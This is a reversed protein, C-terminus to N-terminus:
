PPAEHVIARLRALAASVRVADARSLAETGYRAREFAEIVDELDGPPLPFASALVLQTERPTAGAHALGRQALAAVLARYALFVTADNENRALFANEARALAREVETLTRRRYRGYLMVLIVLITAASIVAMPWWSTATEAGIFGAGPTSTRAATTEFPRLEPSGAFRVRPSADPDSLRLRASGTADAEVLLTADGTTVILQAGPIPTGDPARAVIRLESNAYSASLSPIARILVVLGTTSSLYQDHGGFNAQLVAPGLTANAPVLIDASAIAGARTRASAQAVEDLTVEIDADPVAAGLATVVRLRVTVGEGPVLETPPDIFSITTPQNLFIPEADEFAAHRQGEHIRVGILLSPRTLHRVPLHITVGGDERTVLTGLAQDDITVDVPEGTRATATDDSFYAELVPATVDVVGRSLRMTTAALITIQATATSAQHISGLGEFAATVLMSGLPTAAPLNARAVFAGSANTTASMNVGAVSLTVTGGSLPAGTTDRLSGGLAVFGGRQARVSELTLHTDGAIVVDITHRAPDVLSTRQSTLEIRIIRPHAVVDGTMVIRFSGDSAPTIERVFGDANLSVRPPGQLTPDVVPVGSALLMGRIEARGLNADTTVNAFAPRSRLAVTAGSVTAPTYHTDGDFTVSPTRSGLLSTPPIMLTVAFHGEELTTAN